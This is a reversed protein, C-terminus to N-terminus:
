VLMGNPSCHSSAPSDISHLRSQVVARQPSPLTLVVALSCHSSALRLWCSPQRLLQLLAVHPSPTTHIPWSFHSSPLVVLSPLPQEPSQLVLVRQPLPVVSELM